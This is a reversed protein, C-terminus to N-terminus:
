EPQIGSKRIVEAWLAKEKKVFAQAQAVSGGMPYTGMNRMKAIVDANQVATSAASNLQAILPAPTGKPAFLAFWGSVVLNPVVDKALPIGELGPLERPATVALAKLRGAKVMPMIPAVGDIYLQIDGNVVAQIGQSTTGMPVQQFRTGMTQDMMEAALHPISTRVPSGLSLSEPKAKVAELAAPLTAPGKAPNAALLMPTDAIASIAEFDREFDFKAEKYTHPSIAVVAGQTFLLTMGDPAAGNVQNVAIIGGAGPKNEIVVTAGLQARMNDTVVRAIVDPASGPPAPVVIRITKGKYDQAQAPATFAAIALAVAGMVHRRNM